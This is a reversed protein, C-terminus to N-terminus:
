QSLLKDQYEVEKDICKEYAEATEAYASLLTNCHKALMRCLTHCFRYARRKARSEALRSGIIPNYDDSASQVAKASVTFDIGYPGCEANVCPHAEAWQEIAVPLYGIPVHGRLTCVTCRGYSKIEKDTFKCKIM